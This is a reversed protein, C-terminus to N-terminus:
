CAEEGSKEIAAILSKLRPLMDVIQGLAREKEKEKDRLFENVLWYIIDAGKAARIIDPLKDLPFHVPDNPNDALKRSLETPTMDIEAAIYKLSRGSGYVTRRVCEMFEEKKPTFDLDLQIKMTNVEGKSDGM